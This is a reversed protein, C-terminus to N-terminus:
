FRKSLSPKAQNLEEQSDFQGVTMHPNYTNRDNKLCNSFLQALQGRLQKLHNTSQEDCKMFSVNNEIFSDIENIKISFSSFQCLLLRLKLLIDEQDDQCDNLDYFPRIKM